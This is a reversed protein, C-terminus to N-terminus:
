RRLACFVTPSRATSTASRFPRRRPPLCRSRRSGPVLATYTVGPKRRLRALVEATDAMQPVWNPSVFSGAEICTLGADQLAEILAIKADVTIVGSENQLGDRPGVEVIRVSTPLTM